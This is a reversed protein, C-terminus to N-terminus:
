SAAEMPKPTDILQTHPLNDVPMQRTPHASPVLRTVALVLLLFAASVLTLYAVKRGQRSPRYIANFVMAAALWLLLLGSSWVVPDSWPVDGGRANLAIGSLVGTALLIAAMVICRSTIKETWELSPLRFRIPVRKRQLRNSQILYILGGIFGFFIIVTGLLLSFGHVMGWASKGMPYGSEQPLYEAFAILALILPLLFIGLPVKPHYFLLYLYIAALIWAVLLYWDLSDQPSEQSLRAIVFLTQALLGAFAFSILLIGRIGSRFFLRSCELLLAVTYSAAFCFVSINSM